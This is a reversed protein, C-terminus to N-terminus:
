SIEYKEIATKIRSVMEDYQTKNNRKYTEVFSPSQVVDPNRYTLFFVAINNAVVSTDTSSTNVTNLLDTSSWWSVFFTISLDLTGFVAM